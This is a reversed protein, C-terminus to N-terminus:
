NELSKILISLEKIHLKAQELTAQFCVLEDNELTLVIGVTNNQFIISQLGTARYSVLKKGVEVELM